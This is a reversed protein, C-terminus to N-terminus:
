VLEGPLFNLGEAITGSDLAGSSQRIGLEGTDAGGGDSTENSSVFLSTITAPTTFCSTNVGYLAGSLITRFFGGIGSAEKIVVPPSEIVLQM